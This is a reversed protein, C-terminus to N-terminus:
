PQLVRTLFCPGIDKGAMTPVGVLLNLNWFPLFQLLNLNDSIHQLGVNEDVKGKGLLVKRCFEGQSQLIQDPDYPVHLLQVLDIEVLANGIDIGDSFGIQDDHIGDIRRTTLPRADWLAEYVGGLAPIFLRSASVATRTDNMQNKEEPQAEGAGAAEDDRATRDM